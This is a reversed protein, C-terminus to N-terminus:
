GVILWNGKWLQMYYFVLQESCSRNLGTVLSGMWLSISVDNKINLTHIM